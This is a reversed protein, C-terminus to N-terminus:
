GGSFGSFKLPKGTKNEYGKDMEAANKGSSDEPGVQQYSTAPMQHTQKDRGAIEESKSFRRNAPLSVKEGIKGM